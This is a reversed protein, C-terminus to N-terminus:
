RNEPFSEIIKRIMIQNRSSRCRQAEILMKLKQYCSELHDNVLVYDYKPAQLIEARANFLRKQISTPTNKARKKLRAALTPYDPPLLFISIAAPLRQRVQAAGAVDIDLLVDLGNQISNEVSERTTGYLHHHVEAWELFAGQRVLERFPAEAVFHYDRGNKEGQRPQRTTHSVSFFLCADEDVLRTLLTTKGTGSPGTIIYIGGSPFEGSM